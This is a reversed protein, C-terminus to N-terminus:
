LRPVGGGKSILKTQKRVEKLEERNLLVKMLSAEEVQRSIYPMETSDRAGRYEKSQNNKRRVDITVIQCIQKNAM